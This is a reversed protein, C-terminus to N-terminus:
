SDNSLITYGKNEKGNYRLNDDKQLREELFTRCLSKDVPREYVVVEVIMKRKKTLPIAMPPPTNDDLDLESAMPIRRSEVGLAAPPTIRPLERRVIDRMKALPPSRNPTETDVSFPNSHSGAPVDNSELSGSSMPPSDNSIHPPDERFILRIRKITDLGTTAITEYKKGPREGDEPTPISDRSIRSLMSKKKGHHKTPALYGKGGHIASKGKGGHKTLPPVKGGKQMEMGSSYWVVEEQVPATSSKKLLAPSISIPREETFSARNIAAINLPEPAFLSPDLPASLPQGVYTDFPHSFRPLWSTPEVPTTQPLRQPYEIEM